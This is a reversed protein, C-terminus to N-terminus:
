TLTCTTVTVPQLPSSGIPSVSLQLGAGQGTTRETNCLARDSQPYQFCDPDLCQLWKGDTASPEIRNPISFPYRRQSVSASESPQLPSSGIPSVSLFMPRKCVSHRYLNCLARDSQPYQFLQKIEAAFWDLNTASPEIRNPISFSQDILIIDDTKLTASPEIRNPISFTLCLLHTEAEKIPQLPSSGIPSVSLPSSRASLRAATLQLPSSGIPSVSLSWRSLM